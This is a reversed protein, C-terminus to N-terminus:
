LIEFNKLAIKKFQADATKFDILDFDYLTPLDQLDNWILSEELNDLPREAEIGVDIDARKLETINSQSGFIFIKYQIGQLHRAVTQKIMEVIEEKRSM